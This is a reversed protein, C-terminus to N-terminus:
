HRPSADAATAGAFALMREQVWGSRNPADQPATGALQQIIAKAQKRSGAAGELQRYADASLTVSTPKGAVSVYIRKAPESRAAPKAAGGTASLAPDTLAQRVALTVLQLLDPEAPKEPTRGLIGAVEDRFSAAFAGLRARGAGSEVMAKLAAGVIADIEDEGGDKSM